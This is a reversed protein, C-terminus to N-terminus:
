RLVLLNNNIINYILRFISNLHFLYLIIQMFEPIASTLRLLPISTITTLRVPMSMCYADIKFQKRKIKVEVLYQGCEVSETFM